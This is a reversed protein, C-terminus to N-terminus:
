EKNSIFIRVTKEIPDLILIRGISDVAVDLAKRTDKTDDPNYVGVTDKFAEAGAVVSEFVGTNSYVKVRPVGKEATVFRGDPLIAFSVPNCCGSFGKIGISTEGWSLQMNGDLTYAELKHPGPNVIWLLGDLAVDLDFYPSPIIFKGISNKQNGSLDYILVKKGIADAVFVNDKNADVSTILANTGLSEWKAIRSGSQNYIELHEKMGVYINGDDAVALCKPYDTLKIESEINGQNDFIKISKDGSVYIRDNSDTAIGTPNQLETKIKNIEKYKILNPDTKTLENIDYIFANGITTKKDVTMATRLIIAVAIIIAIGIIIGTILSSKSTKM